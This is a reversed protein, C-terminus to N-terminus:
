LYKLFFFCKLFLVLYWVEEIEKKKLFPVTDLEGFGSV